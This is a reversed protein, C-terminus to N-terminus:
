SEVARQLRGEEGECGWSWKLDRKHGHTLRPYGVGSQVVGWDWNQLTLVGWEWPRSFPWDTKSSLHFAQGARQPGSAPKPCYVRGNRELAEIGQVVGGGPQWDLLRAQGSHFAPLTLGLGLAPGLLNQVKQGRM